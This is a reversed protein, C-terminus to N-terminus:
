ASHTYNELVRRDSLGCVFIVRIGIWSRNAAESHISPECSAVADYGMSAQGRQSIRPIGEIGVLVGIVTAWPSPIPGSIMFAVSWIRSAAPAARAISVM